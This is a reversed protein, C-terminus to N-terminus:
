NLARSKFREFSNIEIIRTIMNSQDQIDVTELLSQRESPHLPCAMVLASILLQPSTKSIEDWNPSISLNKFYTNLASFLSTTDFVAENNNMDINYKSYSVKSRELGNKDTPLIETIEFRCLGQVIITINDDINHIEKIVGACGIKFEESGINPQMIGIINNEILEMGIEEYNSPSIYVPLQAKPMLVAAKIKLIQLIEPLKNIEM